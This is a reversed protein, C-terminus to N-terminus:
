DEETNDKKYNRNELRKQQLRKQELRKSKVHNLMNVADQVNSVRPDVTEINTRYLM